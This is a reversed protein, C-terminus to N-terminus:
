NAKKATLRYARVRPQGRVSLAESGPTYRTTIYEISGLLHLARFVKIFSSLRVNRGAELEMITKHNLGTAESLAQTTLNRELRRARLRAGLESMNESDTLFDGIATM